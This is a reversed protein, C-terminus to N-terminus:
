RIVVDPENPQGWKELTGPNSLTVPQNNNAATESYPNSTGRGLIRVRAEAAGGLVNAVGHTVRQWPNQFTGFPTGSLSSVWTQTAAIRNQSISTRTTTLLGAVNEQSGGTSIPSCFGGPNFMVNPNSFFNIRTSYGLGSCVEQTYAMVTNWRDWCAVPCVLVKGHPAPHFSSGSSCGGVALDHCAGMNHGIEHPLIDHLGLVPHNRANVSAWTAPTASGSWWAVGGVGGGWQNERILAVVDARRDNRASHTAAFAGGSNSLNNLDISGDSNENYSGALDWDSSM